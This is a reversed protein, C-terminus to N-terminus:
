VRVEQSVGNHLKGRLHLPAQLLLDNVTNCLFNFHLNFDNGLALTKEKEGSLGAHWRGVETTSSEIYPKVVVETRKVKM